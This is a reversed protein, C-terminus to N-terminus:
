ADTDRRPPLQGTAIGMYEILHAFPMAESLKRALAIFQRKEAENLAGTKLHATLLEVAADPRRVAELEPPTIKLARALKVLTATSTEYPCMDGSEPHKREGNEIHRLASVSLGTLKTVDPRALDSAKRASRVLAGVIKTRSLNVTPEDAASM